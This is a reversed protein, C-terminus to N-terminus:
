FSDSDVRRKPSPCVPRPRASGSDRELSKRRQLYSHLRTYAAIIAVNARKRSRCIKLDAENESRKAIEGEGGLLRVWTAEERTESAYFDIGRM